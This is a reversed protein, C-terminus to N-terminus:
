SATKSNRVKLIVESFFIINYLKWIRMLNKLVRSWIKLTEKLRNGSEEDNLLVGAPTKSNSLASNLNSVLTSASDSMRQLNTASNRISNFVATDTTLQNILSGPTNLTESFTALSNVLQQARGSTAQLSVAAQNLHDYLANDNLLKGVTGDGAAM